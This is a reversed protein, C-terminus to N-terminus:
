RLWKRVDVTMKLFEAATPYMEQERLTRKKEPRGMACRQQEHRGCRAQRGPPRGLNRQQLPGPAVTM